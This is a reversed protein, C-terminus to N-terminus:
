VRKSMYDDAGTELGAVKQATRTAAGSFLVVFTDSLVPDKKIQRCVELGSLDPLMVDLLVLDPREGSAVQLGQRGSGAQLVKYGEARLIESFLLLIAPDDDVLLICTSKNM